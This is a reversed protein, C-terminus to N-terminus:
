TKQHAIEEAASGATCRGIDYRYIAVRKPNPKDVITPQWGPMSFAYSVVRSGLTLEAELKERLKPMAKPTLFLTVVKANRLPQHFFNRYYVRIKRRRGYLWIRCWCLLYPLLAVEYGVAQVGYQRAASVMLRGDGCGLDCLMEGAKPKAVGLLREVDRIPMPVWPAALLGGWAFTGLVAIIILSLWLPM